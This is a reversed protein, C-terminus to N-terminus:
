AVNNRLNGEWYKMINVNLTFRVALAIEAVRVRVVSHSFSKKFTVIEHTPEEMAQKRCETRQGIAHYM